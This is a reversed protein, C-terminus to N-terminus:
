GGGSDAEFGVEMCEVAGVAVVPLYEVRAAAALRCEGTRRGRLLEWWAVGIGCIIGSDRVRMAAMASARRVSALWGAVRIGSGYRSGLGDGTFRGLEMVSLRM